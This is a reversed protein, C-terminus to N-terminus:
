VIPITDLDRPGIRPRKKLEKAPVGAKLKEAFEEPDFDVGYPNEEFEESMLFATAQEATDFTDIQTELNNGDPDRYYMSVTPGHNVCWVPSIGIEKRQQYAQLLDDLNPYTFSFHELGSTQRDKPKLGPLAVIAVRHHEDDYTIFSLM